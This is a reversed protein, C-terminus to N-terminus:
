RSHGQSGAWLRHIDAEPVWFAGGPCRCLGRLTRAMQEPFAGAQDTGGYAFNSVGSIGFTLSFGLAILAWITSNVFGYMLTVELM